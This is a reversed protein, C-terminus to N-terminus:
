FDVIKSGEKFVILPILMEYLLKKNDNKKGIKYILQYINLTLQIDISGFM